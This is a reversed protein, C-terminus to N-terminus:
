KSRCVQCVGGILDSTKPMTKSCQSCRRASTDAVPKIGRPTQVGTKRTDNNPGTKETRDAKKVGAVVGTVSAATSTIALKRIVDKDLRVNVRDGVALRPLVKTAINGGAIVKVTVGSGDRGTLEGSVLKIINPNSKGLRAVIATGEFTLPMVWQSTPASDEITPEEPTTEVVVAPADVVVPTTNKRPRGRKPKEPTVPAPVSGGIDRYHKANHAFVRVPTEALWTAYAAATEFNFPVDQGDCFQKYSCTFSIEDRGYKKSPCGNGCYPCPGSPKEETEPVDAVVPTESAKVSDAMLQATNDPLSATTGSGRTSKDANGRVGGRKADVVRIADHAKVTKGANKGKRATYEPITVSALTLTVRSGVAIGAFLEGADPASNHWIDRGNADQANDLIIGKGSSAVRTVVGTVTETVAPASKSARASRTAKVPAPSASTTTGGNVLAALSSVAADTQDLRALILDLASSKAM